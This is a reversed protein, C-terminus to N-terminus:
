SARRVVSPVQTSLQVGDNRIEAVLPNNNAVLGNWSGLSYEVVQMENGTWAMVDTHLAALREHLDETEVDDVVVLVDIDSWTHADGRAVSGFLWAGSLDDWLSMRDRLRRILEGRLGALAVVHPAALHRHNLEVLSARGAQTENVLGVAILENIVTSAHSPAVGAITALRRRSVQQELRALHQLLLGRVGPAVDLLPAGLEM